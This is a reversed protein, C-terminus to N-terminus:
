KFTLFTTVRRTRHGLPKSEIEGTLNRTGRKDRRGEVIELRTYKMQISFFFYMFDYFVLLRSNKGFIFSFLIFVFCHISTNLITSMARIM